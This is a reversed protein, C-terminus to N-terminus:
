LFDSRHRGTPVNRPRARHRVERVRRAPGRLAIGSAEGYCRRRVRAREPVDAKRYIYGENVMSQGLAFCRLDGFLKDAAFGDFPKRACCVAQPCLLRSAPVVPM